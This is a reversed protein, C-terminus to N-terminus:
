KKVQQQKAAAKKKAEEEVLRKNAEDIAKQLQADHEAWAKQAEEPSAEVFRDKPAKAIIKYYAFNDTVDTGFEKALAKGLAAKSPYIIGTVTDKIATRTRKGGFLGASKKVTTTQLKKIEDLITPIADVLDQVVSILNEQTVKITEAM